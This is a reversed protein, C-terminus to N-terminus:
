SDQERDKAEARLFRGFALTQNQEDLQERQRCIRAIDPWYYAFKTCRGDKDQKLCKFRLPNGGLDPCSNERWDKLRSNPIGLEEEIFAATLLNGSPTQFDSDPLDTQTVVDGQTDKQPSKAALVQLAADVWDLPEDLLACKGGGFVALCETWSLVKSVFERPRRFCKPDYCAAAWFIMRKGAEVTDHSGTLILSLTARQEADYYGQKRSPKIPDPCTAALDHGAASLVTASWKAFAGCFFDGAANCANGWSQKFSQGVAGRVTLDQHRLEVWEQSNACVPDDGGYKEAVSSWKLRLDALEKQLEARTRSDNPM